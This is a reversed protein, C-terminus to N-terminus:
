SCCLFHVFVCMSVEAQGPVHLLGLQGYAQKLEAVNIQGDKDVDLQDFIKRYYAEKEPSVESSRHPAAM